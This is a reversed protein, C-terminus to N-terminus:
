VAATSADPESSGAHQTATSAPAGGSVVAHHPPLSPPSVVHAAVTSRSHTSIVTSIPNSVEDFAFADPVIRNSVEQVPLPAQYGYAHADLPKTSLTIHLTTVKRPTTVVREGAEDTMEVGERQEISGLVTVQHLHPVRRKAVEACAIAVPIANGAASLTVCERGESQM